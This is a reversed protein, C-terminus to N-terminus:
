RSKLSVNKQVYEGGVSAMQQGFHMGMQATMNVNPDNSMFNGFNGFGAQGGPQNSPPGQQSYYGGGASSSGPQGYGPGGGYTADSMASGFSQGYASPDLQQPQQQQQIPPSSYRAYQTGSPGGSLSSM